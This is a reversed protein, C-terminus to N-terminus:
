TSCSQTDELIVQDIINVLTQSFSFDNILDPRCYLTRKLSQKTKWRDIEQHHGSLLVDPVDMQDISRPACYQPSELYDLYYLIM